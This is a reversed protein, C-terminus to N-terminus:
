RWVSFSNMEVVRPHEPNYLIKEKFFESDINRTDGWYIGGKAYDITGEYISEVEHLMRTFIPNWLEPFGTPVFTEATFKPIAQIIDGWTGWGLRQRNALCSMVM